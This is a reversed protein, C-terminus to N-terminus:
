IAVSKDVCFRAEALGRHSSRATFLGGAQPQLSERGADLGVRASTVFAQDLRPGGLAISTVNSVPLEIADTCRGLSDYRHVVSGGWCAIWLGGSEDVCAGDPM